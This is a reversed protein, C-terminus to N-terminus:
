PRTDICTAPPPHRLRTLPFPVAPRRRSPPSRMAPRAARAQFELSSACSMNGCGMASPDDCQPATIPLGREALWGSLLEVEWRQAPGVHATCFHLLTSDVARGAVREFTACADLAGAHHAMMGRAFDVNVDCTLEFNMAEHMAMSSAAYSVTSTATLAGCGMFM